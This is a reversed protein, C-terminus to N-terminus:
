IQNNTLYFIDKYFALDWQQPPRVGSALRSSLIKEPGGLLSSPRSPRRGAKRGSQESAPAGARETAPGVNVLDSGGLSAAHRLAAGVEGQRPGKGPGHPTHRVRRVRVAHGRGDLVRLLRLPYPPLRGDGVSLGDLDDDVVDVRLWVETLHLGWEVGGHQGNSGNRKPVELRGNSTPVHHCRGSCLAAVIGGM